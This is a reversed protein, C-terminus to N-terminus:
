KTMLKATIMGGMSYGVVHAKTIKLEDLLRVVDEVMEEGYASDNTPKDSEGHGPMDLAIVKYDKALMDFIGPLQWNMLSSSYLGHILVVPEGKGAVVYSLKVGNSNLVHRTPADAALMPMAASLLCAILLLVRMEGCM